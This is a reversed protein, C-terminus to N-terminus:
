VQYEEPTAIYDAYVNSLGALVVRQAINDAARALQRRLRRGSMTTFEGPVAAMVLGGVRAVSCSVVHPQWEYPFRAQTDFQVAVFKHYDPDFFTSVQQRLGLDVEPVLLQKVKALQPLRIEHYCKEIKVQFHTRHVKYSPIPGPM